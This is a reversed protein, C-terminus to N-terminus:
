ASQASQSFHTRVQDPDFNLFTGGSAFQQIFVKGVAWTFGAALGPVALMGVVHGVVPVARILAGGSGFGLHTAMYGGLLSSVIPRLRDQSFPIGYVHALEGIMKLEVAAIAAFDILPVPLLGAVGAYLAYRNVIEKAQENKDIM